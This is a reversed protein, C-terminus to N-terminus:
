RWIIPPPMYVPPRQDDGEKKIKGENQRARRREKRAKLWRDYQRPTMQSRPQYGVRTAFWHARWDDDTPARGYM